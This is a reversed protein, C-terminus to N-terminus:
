RGRRELAKSAAESYCSREFPHNKMDPTSQEARTGARRAFDKIM